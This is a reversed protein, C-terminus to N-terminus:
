ARLGELKELRRIRNYIVPQSGKVITLYPNAQQPGSALEKQLAQRLGPGYGLRYAYADQRYGICRSLLRRFFNFVINLISFLLVFAIVPIVAPLLHIRHLLYGSLVLTLIVTRARGTRASGTRARGSRSFGRRLIRSGCKYIIIMMRPLLGATLFATDVLTDKSLLHGLQHALVGKLEDDTAQALMGRTVVITHHGVAFADWDMEEGVKLSFRGDCGAKQLVEGLCSQLKREEDLIPKRIKGRISLYIGTSFYSSSFCFLCWGAMMLWGATNSIYVGSLRLLLLFAFATLLVYLLVLGAQFYKSM